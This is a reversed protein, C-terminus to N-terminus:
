KKEIIITIKKNGSTFTENLPDDSELAMKLGFANKHNEDDSQLNYSIVQRTTKTKKSLKEQSGHKNILLSLLNM